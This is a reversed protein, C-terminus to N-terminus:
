IGLFFMLATFVIHAACNINVVPPLGKAASVHAGIFMRFGKTRVALPMAEAEKEEKTKRKRSPKGQTIEEKGTKGEEDDEEEKKVTTKEFKRKRTKKQPSKEEEEPTEEEKVTIEKAKTKRLSTKIKQGESRLEVINGINDKKTTRKRQLRQPAKEDVGNQRIQEVTTADIKSRKRSSKYTELGYASGTTNDGELATSDLIEDVSLGVCCAAEIDNSNTHQQHNRAVPPAQDSSNNNTTQRAGRRSPTQKKNDFDLERARAASTILDGSPKPNFQANPEVEERNWFSRRRGQDPNASKAPSTM